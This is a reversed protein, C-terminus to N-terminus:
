FPKTIRLHKAALGALSENAAKLENRAKQLRRTQPTLILKDVVVVALVIAVATTLLKERTTLARM